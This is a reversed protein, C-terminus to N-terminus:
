KTEDFDIQVLRAEEIRVAGATIKMLVQLSNNLDSRRDVEADKDLLVALGIADRHYALASRVTAGAAGVNTLLRTSWKVQFGLYSNIDGNVLARVNNYDASTIQSDGLLAQVAIPSIILHRDSAPVDASDLIQKAQRWKALTFNTGGNAIVQASPLAVTSVVDQNDVALSNGTAAAIIYDDLRRNKANAFTKTYAGQLNVLEKVVDVDDILDAVSWDTFTVRRRTHPVNSVITPAHRSSIQQMEVTGIREFNFSKGTVNRELRVTDYLKTTDQQALFHVNASFQHVFAVDVSFSM